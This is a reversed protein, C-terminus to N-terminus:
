RMGSDFSLTVTTFKGPLVTVTQQEGRPFRRAPQSPDSGVTYEGPPLAVRFRGDAGTQFRAVERGDSSLVVLTTQYPASGSQGQRLPGPHSPSIQAQGEIGSEHQPIVPGGGGVRSLEGGRVEFEIESARAGRAIYVVIRQRGRLRYSQVDSLRGEDGRANLEAFTRSAADWHFVRLAGGSSSGHLFLGIIEPIGDNDIDAIRVNTINTAPSRDEAQWITRPKPNTTEVALRAASARGYGTKLIVVQYRVGDGALRGRAAVTRRQAGGRPEQTTQGFVSVASPAILATLPLILLISRLRMPKVKVFENV